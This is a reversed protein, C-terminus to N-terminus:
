RTVIVLGDYRSAQLPADAEQPAFTQERRLISFRVPGWEELAFTLRAVEGTQIPEASSSRYALLEFAGNALRRWRDGWPPFEALTKNAGVLAPGPVAHKLWVPKSARIVFSGMRPRAEGEQPQYDLALQVERLRGEVLRRGVLRLRLSCEACSVAEV